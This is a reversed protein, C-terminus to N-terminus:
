KSKRWVWRSVWFYRAVFAIVIALTASAVYWIGIFETFAFLLAEDLILTASAALLYHLYGLKTEKRDGFTWRKNLWYNQSAAVLFAFAFSGLYYLGVIDTLLFLILLNTLTGIGGVIGFRLVRFKYLYLSALQLLYDRIQEWRMKTSGHKRIGFTYPVEVVSKWNGKVLLELMIKFGRNSVSELNLLGNRRFGFFGSVADKVPTLPRAALNAVRSIVRRDLDWEECSGGDTYRSAVVFDYIELQELLKPILEPPHQLDADLVIIKDSDTSKIGDIVASSLRRKGNRHLVQFGVNRAANTTLENPSDDVVLVDIDKPLRQKLETINESENYCPIIITTM